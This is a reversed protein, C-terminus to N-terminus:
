VGMDKRKNNREKRRSISSNIFAIIIPALATFVAAIAPGDKGLFFLVGALALIAITIFFSYHQAISARKSDGHIVLKELEMRHNTQSVVNDFLLKTAGPYLAKYKELEAPPPFPSERFATLEFGSASPQAKELTTLPRDKKSRTSM